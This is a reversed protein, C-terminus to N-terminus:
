VGLIESVVTEAHGKDQAQLIIRGSEFATIERGDISVRLLYNNYAIIEGTERLQKM